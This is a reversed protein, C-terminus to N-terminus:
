HCWHGCASINGDCEPESDGSIHNGDAAGNHRKAIGCSATCSACVGGRDFHLTGSLFDRVRDDASGSAGGLVQIRSNQLSMLVSVPLLGCILVHVGQEALFEAPKETNFSLLEESLIEDDLTHYLKFMAAEKLHLVVQEEKCPVAIKM